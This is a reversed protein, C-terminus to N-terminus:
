GYKMPYPIVTRLPTSPQFSKSFREDSEKEVQLSIFLECTTTNNIKNVM